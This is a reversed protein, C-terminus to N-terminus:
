LSFSVENSEKGNATVTATYNGGKVDPPNKTLSTSTGTVTQCGSSPGSYCFSYNNAGQLSNWSFNATGSGTGTTKLTLKKNGDEAGGKFSAPKTDSNQYLVSDTVTAVITAGGSFTPKYARSCTQTAASSLSCRAVLNGNITFNVTGAFKSSTLPYTGQTVTATLSYNGGSSPNVTLTINPKQDSCNHVDDKATTNYATASGGNVFEDISFTNANGNTVTMRAAPPTCNTALKNSVRDITAAGSGSKPKYWSPFLDTSPSPEVSGVGVHNRVVFAPLSKVGAPKQWNVPTLGQHIYEMMGRTIPETLYEMAGATLAVNRTHYGVWSVVAYKTSWSTMLGDFNDNTTGTKVAFKWGNFRQFKYGYPLYSANPDSLMDNVIYATDPKLVQKPKPQTFKDVSKGGANAIQLIFTHPIAEGLRALTALGNVHDDLHLYAGDGIASSPYCPGTKTLAEDQYCNYTRKNSPRTPDMMDSATNITKDVGAIVMAKVAPVNRSGALGYRLTLPGPYKFDYDWLCNGNPDYKPIHKNTCAYGAKTAPDILPGQTDYLVSGAGANSSNILTAYDYPKFSSGPPILAQAAYNVEGHNKNTFDVGGVLALIQGTKVDETVTAEEDGGNNEVNPLNEAVLQEAKNQMRMDLTTTVKWGGLQVTNSGYKDILQQKAALVFYPAKIGQYKPLLPHIQALIHVKKAHEAQTSTIMKQEVMQDLIYHQRNLLAKESFANTTASPNFKPSSYPSYYSPSQPIAALFASQALTLHKADTHFYDRAASEVGYEVGGYPAINLYGTIIDNKSYERELEVAIILEKVKRTVTRNNTWQENLKVLQQTITSGGQVHGSSNTLDHFGARMIGRLDFAGHKYFDKDEIAVTAQKMYNSINDYKVPIRKVADYDQWLVVKGSRDYYTISGGLKDGSIDNIKPLDKRFYAFVGIIMFFGVIVGIGAIKLAMIGGERSFWYQALRSPHMRYALRKLRGKPLTSLYIARQTARAHKNAKIRDTLSRHVKITRGSRTTFTNKTRRPGSSRRNFDNM